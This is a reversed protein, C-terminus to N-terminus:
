EEPSSSASSEANRAAAGRLRIRHGVDVADLRIKWFEGAKAPDIIREGDQKGLLANSEADLAAKLEALEADSLQGLLEQRAADAAELVQGVEGPGATRLQQGFTRRIEGFTETM